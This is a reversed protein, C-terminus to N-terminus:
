MRFLIGSYYELVRLFVSVVANRRMDTKDRSQLFVDAEDLLMVCGWRHALEFNYKLNKQVDQANDGIDGVATLPRVCPRVHTDQRM